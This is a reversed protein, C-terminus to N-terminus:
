LIRRVVIDSFRSPGHVYQGARPDRIDLLRGTVFIVPEGIRRHAEDDTLVFDPQTIFADVGGVLHFLSCTNCASSKGCSWGSAGPITPVL